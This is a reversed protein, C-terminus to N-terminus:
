IEGDASDEAALQALYKAMSQANGGLGETPKRVHVKGDKITCQWKAVKALAQLEYELTNRFTSAVGMEDQGRGCLKRITQVKIPLPSRGHSSYFAHLWKGLPSLQQREVWNIGTFGTKYLERIADSLTITATRSDASASILSCWDTSMADEGSIGFILQSKSMRELSLRLWDRNKGGDQRGTAVLLGRMPLSLVSVPKGSDAERIAAEGLLTLFVDLDSQDFVEWHTMAIFLNKLSPLQTSPSEACVLRAKGPPLAGFLASRLCINPVFRYDDNQPFLFHQDSM